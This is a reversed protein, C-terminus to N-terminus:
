HKTNILWEKAPDMDTFYKVLINLESEYKKLYKQIKRKGIKSAGVFALKSIYNKLRLLSDVILGAIEITIVTENLDYLIFSSNSPRSMLKENDLIKEKILEVNDGLNDICIVWIEGDNYPISFSQRLDPASRKPKTFLFKM